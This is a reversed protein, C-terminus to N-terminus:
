KGWDIPKEQISQMFELGKDTPYDMKQDADTWRRNRSRHLGILRNEVVVSVTSTEGTDEIPMLDIQGRFSIVPDSVVAGGSFMGFYVTCTRGQYDEALALTLLEAPLGTMSITLGKAQVEMNESPSSISMVANAGTWDYGGWSLVGNGTWIRLDGSDFALHVLNFPSVQADGAATKMATSLGRSM